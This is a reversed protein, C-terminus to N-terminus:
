TSISAWPKWCTRAAPSVRHAVAYGAGAVVFAATTSINFTGSADGGTGCTDVLPRRAAPVHTAMARMTEAFGTIEDVTEGKMRLGILLSAIQAPSAEGNMLARMAESAEERTLDRGAVVASIITTLLETSSM